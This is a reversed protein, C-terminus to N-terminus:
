YISNNISPTYNIDQLQQQQPYNSNNYQSDNSYYPKEGTYEETYPNPSAPRRIIFICERIFIYVKCICFGISILTILGAVSLLIIGISTGWNLRTSEIELYDGSFEMYQIILYSYSNDNKLNYYYKQIYIVKKNIRTESISTTEPILTNSPTLSYSNPSINTFEYLLTSVIKGNIANLQIHLTSEDDFENTNLYFYDSKETVNITGYKPLYNICFIYSILLSFIIGKM